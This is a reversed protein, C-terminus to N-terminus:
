LHAHSYDQNASTRAHTTKRQSKSITKELLEICNAILAEEWRLNKDNNFNPNELIEKQGKNLTRLKFTRKYHLMQTTTKALMKIEAKFTEWLIQPNQINTRDGIIDQLDEQLKRGIQEIGKMLKNDKLANIPWSWQGKGILLADKPALRVSILWHDTSVTSPM